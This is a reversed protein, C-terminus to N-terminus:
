KKLGAAWNVIATMSVTGGLDLLTPILFRGDKSVDYRGNVPLHAEFLPTAREFKPGAKVEVVMLKQDPAVFYLEKGDRSWRPLSGGNISIPWRRSRTPFTEVYVERRKSADSSYALWRGNASLVADSESFGTDHYPFPKKERNTPLLWIRSQNRTEILYDRSWDSPRSQGPSRGPGITDDLREDQASGTIARRLIGAGGPTFAIYSGDPSWVPNANSHPGFTFRADTGPVLDHLWIDAFGTQADRRDYAVKTGDPSIAARAVEGTPGITGLPHGARDFWTLQAKLGGSVYVVIGTRSASFMGQDSSRYNNIGETIPVAEGTIRSKRPDFPQAMLTGDRHFLLYGPPVYIANSNAGLILRRDKSHSASRLDAIYVRIKEPDSNRATYLFHLGDPLFWPMVHSTEGTSGDPKSLPVPASGATASVRFLGDGNVGYVIQDKQNWTGGRGFEVGCITIPQGGTVDIKKLKGATTFFGIWHSDTSWFPYRAGDSGPLLRTALAGLNRIWLGQQGSVSASYILWRGDPSVAPISGDDFAANDPLVVSLKLSGPLSTGESSHRYAAIGIGMATVLGATALIWPLSLLGAKPSTPIKVQPQDELLFRAEGIDRLRRSPDKEFCRSLLKRAPVHSLDPEKTLVQALTDSATEGEFLREGTLMEYLVVGFAWIDARKDVLKGRAQEPSMYGATGLIVGADTAAISLTPADTPDDSTPSLMKALGFDLVKVAGDSTIKINAPKLDRHVVGREHAYELADAIQLAYRLATEAPLPGKPSEGEILEMVLYNPGVDFLTCINPHNLAAIARIELEIREGFRDACVKIAVDRGTRPDHARYVEGMGGAALFSRIEYPGLHAGAQLKGSTSIMKSAAAAAWHGFRADDNYSALLSAIERHLDGDGACAQCVYGERESPSRELAEHFISQIQQWREV